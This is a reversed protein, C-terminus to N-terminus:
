NLSIGTLLFPFSIPMKIAFSDVYKMTQGFVYEGFNLKSKTQIQFILKSLASPISSRHNAPAWNAVGIRSLVDHKVSLSGSPILGKKPWKKVQGVTIERAIKDM